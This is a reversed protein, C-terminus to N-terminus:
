AAARAPERELPIDLCFTAGRGPGESEAHLKAGMETAANASVHLGFGHGNKKTTFGHQFIRTLNEAPIGVGNDRVEIRASGDALRALRLTLRPVPGGHEELAQCANQILNV